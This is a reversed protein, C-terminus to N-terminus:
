KSASVAHSSTTPAGPGVEMNTAVSLVSLATALTILNALIIIAPAGVLGVNGVVWGIRLYLIVGLITLISPTFVGVFTGLGGKRDRRRAARFRALLATVWPSRDAPQQQDADDLRSGEPRLAAALTGDAPVSRGPDPGNGISLRSCGVSSTPIFM